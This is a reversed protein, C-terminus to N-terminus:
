DDHFVSVRHQQLWRGQTLVLTQVGACRVTPVDVALWHKWAALSLTLWSLVTFRKRLIPTLWGHSAAM